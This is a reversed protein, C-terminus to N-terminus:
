QSDLIPTELAQLGFSVGGFIQLSYFTIPRLVGKKSLIYKILKIQTKKKKLYMLHSINNYAIPDDTVIM